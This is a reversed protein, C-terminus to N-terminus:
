VLTGLGTVSVTRYYFGSNTDLGHKHECILRQDAEDTVIIREAFARLQM